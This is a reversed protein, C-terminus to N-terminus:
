NGVVGESIMYGVPPRKKNSYQRVKTKLFGRDIVSVRTGEEPVFCEKTGMLLSFFQHWDQKIQASTFEDLAQKSTCIAFTDVTSAANAHSCALASVLLLVTTTTKM